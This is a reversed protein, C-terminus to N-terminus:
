HVPTQALEPLQHHVPFGPTSCDMPDSDSAASHGFELNIEAHYKRINEIETSIGVKNIFQRVEMLMKIGAVKFEKDPLDTVETENVDKESM